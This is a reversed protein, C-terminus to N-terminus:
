NASRLHRPPPALCGNLRFNGSEFTKVLDYALVGSYPGTPTSVVIDGLRIDHNRSPVGGGIGVLLCFTVAPFSRKMNSAVDAASSTGYEGDPLCAAVVNHKGIRGLAYAHTDAPPICENHTEDFSARVAKLEIALACIIGVAYDKPRFQMAQPQRSSGSTEEHSLNAHQRFTSSTMSSSDISLTSRTSRGLGSDISSAHDKETSGALNSSADLDVSSPDGKDKWYWRHNTDFGFVIGGSDGPYTSCEMALGRAIREPLIIQALDSHNGNRLQLCQCKSFVTQPIYWLLDNTLRMPSAYLDGCARVINELDPVSAALYSRGVPLSAWEPCPQGVPQIIDGFNRGLLIATHISRSFDVWSRGEPDIIARRPYFLPREKALDTFDWGELWSRPVQSYDARAQYDIIKELSDYFDEVRDEFYVFHDKEEYVKLKLNYPNLLVELASDHQYPDIADQIDESALMLRSGFKNSKDQKLSARVLHLLASAGNVLWGRKMQVDWLMLFMQSIWRMKAVYCNRRVHIDKHGISFATDGTIIHGTSMSVEALTSKGSPRQLRSEEVAYIADPAGAYLKMAPCWGVLHRARELDSSYLDLAPFEDSSHYSLREGVDSQQLHWFVIGECYATPVLMVSFGKLVTRGGFVNVRRTRTLGSLIQLPIELGTNPEPRRPIPYGEVIVPNRFLGYWCCGNTMNTVDQEDHHLSFDIELIHSANWMPLDTFRGRELQKIFPRCCAIGSEVPSSRLACGLWAFQEGVEAISDGTGRIAVWVAPYTGSDCQLAEAFVQVTTGDPLVAFPPNNHEGSAFETILQLIQIGTLPWTQSMYQSCTLAQATTRSGTLTIAREMADKPSEAYEQETYFAIPNWNLRVFVEFAMTPTKRSIIPSVPLVALIYDRIQHMVNAEPPALMCERHLITLLWKYSPSNIILARYSQLQPLNSDEGDVKSSDILVQDENEMDELSEEVNFGPEPPGKSHWLSMLEQLPMKDSNRDEGDAMDQEQDLGESLSDILAASIEVRYKHIFVMVDLHSQTSSSRGLSLSFARLLGPLGESMRDLSETTPHLPQITKSILGVLEMIYRGKVTDSITSAASYISQDDYDRTPAVYEDTKNSEPNNLGEYVHISPRRCGGDNIKTNRKTTKPDKHTTSGYGSDTFALSPLKDEPSRRAPPDFPLGEPQIMSDIKSVMENLSGKIAVLQSPGIHNIATEISQLNFRVQVEAPTPHAPLLEYETNNHGDWWWSDLHGTTLLHDQPEPVQSAELFCFQEAAEDDPLNNMACAAQNCVISPDEWLNVHSELASSHREQSKQVM